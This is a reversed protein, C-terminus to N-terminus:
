EEIPEEEPEITIVVPIVLDFMEQSTKSFLYYDDVFVLSDNDNYYSYERYVRGSIYANELDYTRTNSGSKEATFSESGSGGGLLWGSITIEADVDLDHYWQCAAYSHDPLPM